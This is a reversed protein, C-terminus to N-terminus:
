NLIMQAEEAKVTCVSKEKLFNNFPIRLPESSFKKKLDNM